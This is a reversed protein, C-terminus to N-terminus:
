APGASSCPSVAASSGAALSARLGSEGHVRRIGRGVELREELLYIEGQDHRDVRTERPLAEDCVDHRLERGDGPPLLLSAETEQDLDVAPDAGPVGADDRRVPALDQHGGRGDELRVIRLRRDRRDPPRALLGRGLCSGPSDGRGSEGQAM